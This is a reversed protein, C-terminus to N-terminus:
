LRRTALQWPVPGGRLRNVCAEVLWPLLLALGVLVLVAGSAIAFPNVPEYGNTRGTVALVALGAAPMLLRWWLRRGRERG